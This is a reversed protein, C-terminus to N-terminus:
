KTDGEEIWALVVTLAGQWGEYSASYLLDKQNESKTYIDTYQKQLNNAAIKLKQIEKKLTEVNM